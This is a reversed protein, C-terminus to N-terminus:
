LSKFGKYNSLTFQSTPLHNPYYIEYFTQVPLFLSLRNGHRMELSLNEATTHYVILKFKLKEETNKSPGCPCIELVVPPGRVMTQSVSAYVM